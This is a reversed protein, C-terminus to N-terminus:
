NACFQHLLESHWLMWDPLMDGGDAYIQCQMDNLDRYGNAHAFADDILSYISGDATRCFTIVDGTPEYTFTFLDGEMDKHRNTKLPNMESSMDVASAM